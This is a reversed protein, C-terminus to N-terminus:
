RVDPIDVTPHGLRLEVWGAVGLRPRAANKVSRCRVCSPARACSHKTASSQCCCRARRRRMCCSGAADDGALWLGAADMPIAQEDM